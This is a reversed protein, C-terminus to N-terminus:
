GDDTFLSTKMGINCFDFFEGQSRATEEQTAKLAMDKQSMMALGAM